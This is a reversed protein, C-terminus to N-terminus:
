DVRGSEHELVEQGSGVRGTLNLCRKVRGSGVRGRLNKFGGSGVRPDACSERFTRITVVAGGKRM